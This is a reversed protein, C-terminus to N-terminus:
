YKQRTTPTNPTGGMPNRRSQTWAHSHDSDFVYCMVYSVIYKSIYMWCWIGVNFMHFYMPNIMWMIFLYNFMNIRFCFLMSLSLWISSSLSFTRGPFCIHFDITAFRPWWFHFDITVIHENVNQECTTTPMINKVHAVRPNPLTLTDDMTPTATNISFSTFVHTPHPLAFRLADIM